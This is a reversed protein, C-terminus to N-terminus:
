ALDQPRIPLRRLRKGTAAFIANAVAPATTPTSAEGIGGPANTSPVIHVEVVPMEDIRLVEYQNFNQQEVRGNKITIGGKLAASLGYVIGSQIQTEVIAPNVVQGCDVACVVRHVRLKGNIVSVETVQANYSGINNVVAIGRGHGAALPKGWGAKEAALEVVHLMRPNKALLRRRLELPDKGGAAALEDLFSETFFTNQSYGVSRWYTTPIGPDAKNYEVQIHPIAYEIDAIGEVAARDVGNQIGQFSPCGVRTTWVAPWGEADVAGAFRTYSAPRYLDHTMDDERSWTLKIPIGVAKSIEVAEAVFDDSGRRGFGGGLYLTHVNIKDPALGTIKAAAGRAATQIQTAAWVNCGDARVDATCNMPEMPAHSMYAAEYVSELKKPASELAAWADGVKRAPAGPKSAGEEMLKRIQASDLTALSGEDWKIQLARRGEMANWTNDAVVAVGNSIQVVQKVGPVAKAKTADFSAVKGGFVPCRALVAYQMGPVKADLGFTATGNVKSPTDLRKLSKGILKYQSANKPAVGSPAPLKAAEQALSGYLLREGSPSLVASNETRCQAPDVNWRRAAVAVLMARATAGAKRMPEWTTRITMSGFTGQLPGYLKPDVPAFQTRIRTWDADLEDALIQSVSTVPGQGMESKPIVLTISDDAGIHIYGNLPFTGVNSGQARLVSKEPIAFSLTLGAAAGIGVKLFGRRGVKKVAIM